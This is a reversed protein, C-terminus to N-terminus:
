KLPFGLFMHPLVNSSSIIPNVLYTNLLDLIFYVRCQVTLHVYYHRFPQAAVNPSAIRVRALEFDINENLFQSM